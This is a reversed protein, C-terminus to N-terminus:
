IAPYSSPQIAPYSSRQITPHPPPTTELSLLLTAAFEPMASYREAPDPELAKLIANSLSEPVDSRLKDLAAPRDKFRSAILAMTNEGKFPTEGALLEYLVCGLSFVDTAQDLEREGSAQEPSMYDPTGFTHWERVPGIWERRRFMRALGFDAVVAHNGSLLINSPKIDCHVVGAAHAFGLGDAVELGLRLVLEVPLSDANDLLESLSGEGLYPSIFYPVGSADGSDLVTLIHPHQLQATFRTERVFQDLGVMGTIDPNLVKIAVARGHRVDRAQYVKGMGGSGLVRDMVFREGLEKFVRAEVSGGRKLATSRTVIMGAPYAVGMGHAM